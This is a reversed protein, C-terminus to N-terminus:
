IFSILLCPFYFTVFDNSIAIIQTEATATMVANETPSKESFCIVSSAVAFGSFGFSVNLGTDM